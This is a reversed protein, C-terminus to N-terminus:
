LIISDLQSEQGIIPLDPDISIHRIEALTKGYDVQDATFTGFAERSGHMGLRVKV